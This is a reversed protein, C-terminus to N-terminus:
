FSGKRVPCVRRQPPTKNLHNTLKDINEPTNIDNAILIARVINSLKRQEFQEQEQNSM